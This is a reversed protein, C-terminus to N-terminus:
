AREALTAFVMSVLYAGPDVAGLSQEGLYRAKGHKAILGKTTECGIRAAEAARGLADRIPVHLDAAARLATVAPELADVLTKDGVHAGGLLRIKRACAEFMSATVQLDIESKGKVNKGAELFLSAVTPGSAGGASSLIANGAAMLIVGVDNGSDEKVVRKAEAFATAMTTGFDGDGCAADMSNFESRAELVQDSLKVLFNKLDDYNLTQPM